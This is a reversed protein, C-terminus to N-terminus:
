TEKSVSPKNKSGNVKKSVAKNKATKPRGPGGTQLVDRAAGMAHMGDLIQQPTHTKLLQDIAYNVVSTKTWVGRVREIQRDKDGTLRLCMITYQSM